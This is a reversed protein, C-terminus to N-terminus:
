PKPQMTLITNQTTSSLAGEGRPRIGKVCGASVGQTDRGGVTIGENARKEGLPLAPRTILFGPRGNVGTVLSRFPPHWDVRAIDSLCVWITLFCTNWSGPYKRDARAGQVVNDDFSLPCIFPM